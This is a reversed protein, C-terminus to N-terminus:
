NLGLQAVTMHAIPQRTGDAYIATVAIESPQSSGRRWATVKTEFCATGAEFAKMVTTAAAPEGRAFARLAQNAAWDLGVELAELPAEDDAEGSM